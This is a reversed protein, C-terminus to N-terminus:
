LLQVDTPKTAFKELLPDAISTFPVMLLGDKIVTYMAIVPSKLDLKWLIRGLRRDVTVVRGTSSTTFHVLDLILDFEM